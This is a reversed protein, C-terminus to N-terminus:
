APRTGGSSFLFSAPLKGAPTEIGSSAARGLPPGVGDDDPPRGDEAVAGDQRHDGRGQPRPQAPGHRSEPAGNRPRPACRSRSRDGEDFFRKMQKMKTDYDTTTSRRACRSRRSRSSRRSRAPRPRSKEAARIQIQRLGDAKVVPPKAEPSVEVLDFGKEEAIARAEDIGIPGYKHGDDGILLITRPFSKTM